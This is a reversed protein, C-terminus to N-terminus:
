RVSGLIEGNREAAETLQAFKHLRNMQNRKRAFTVLHGHKRSLWPIRLWHMFVSLGVQFWSNKGFRM